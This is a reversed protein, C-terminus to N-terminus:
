KKRPMRTHSSCEEIRGPWTIGSSNAGISRCIRLEDLDMMYTRSWYTRQTRVVPYFKNNSSPVPPEEEKKHHRNGCSMLTSSAKWQRRSSCRTIKIVRLIRMHFCRVALWLQSSSGRVWHQRSLTILHAGRSYSWIRIRLRRRATAWRSLPM